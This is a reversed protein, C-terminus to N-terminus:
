NFCVIENVVKKPTPPLILCSSCLKFLMKVQTRLCISIGEDYSVNKQPAVVTVFNTVDDVSNSNFHYGRLDCEIITPMFNLVILMIIM